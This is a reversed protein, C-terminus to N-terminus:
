MKKVIYKVIGWIRFDNDKTVVIPKYNKNAPILLGHDGKNEFRKLTFEGNLYCVALSGNYPEISRDIILLDGDDVGDDIMSVGSVRAFFTAAPNSILEKNLDLKIDSYNEAPSPFGASIANSALPLELDESPEAKIIKDINGM